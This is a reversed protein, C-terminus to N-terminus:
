ASRWSDVVRATVFLAWLTVSFHLVVRRTDILGKSCEELFSSLSIYGSFDRLPGASFIYEGIGLVFLGFILGSTLLLAILQSKSLASMLVGLALYSMGVLGLGLYSTVLTPIHLSGTERLTVAYLVTPSWILTYTILISLYKGLVLASASMPASLLAEISGSRREEAFSRMTLAPCLLLLTFAMLLSQKGFYAQLPGSELGAEDLQSFHVTISYFVGGQLMLFSVLLVWALPTVWM